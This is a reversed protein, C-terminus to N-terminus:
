GAARLGEAPRLRLGARMADGVARIDGVEELGLVTRGLAEVADEGLVLGACDRFKAEIAGPPLPHDRDRGLPRDVSAEFTRGDTTTVRLEAFFHEDTDM